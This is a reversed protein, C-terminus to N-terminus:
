LRLQKFKTTRKPQHYYDVIENPIEPYCKTKSNKLNPYIAKFLNKLWEPKTYRTGKSKLESDHVKWLHRNCLYLYGTGDVIIHKKLFDEPKNSEIYTIRESELYKFLQIIKKITEIDKIMMSYYIPCIYCRIGLSEWFQNAENKANYQLVRRDMRIIKIIHYYSNNEYCMRCSGNVHIHCIWQHSEIAVDKNHVLVSSM